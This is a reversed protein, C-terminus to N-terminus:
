KELKFDHKNRGTTIDVELTTSTNYKAPIVEKTEDATPADGGPTPIKKGTKKRWNITVRHKGPQPGRDASVMYKGDIIGTGVPNGKNTPAFSIGGNDVVEGNYTVTGEITNGGSCGAIAFTLGLFCLLSVLSLLRSRM